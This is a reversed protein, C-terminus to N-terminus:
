IKQKKLWTDIESSMFALTEFKFKISKKRKYKRLLWDCLVARKRHTEYIAYLSIIDQQEFGFPKILGVFIEMMEKDTLKMLSPNLRFIYRPKKRKPMKFAHPDFMEQGYKNVFYEGIVYHWKMKAEKPLYPTLYYKRIYIGDYSRVFLKRGEKKFRVDELIGFKGWGSDKKQREKNIREKKKKYESETKAFLQEGEPKIQYWYGDREAFFVEGDKSYEHGIKDYRYPSIEEFDYNWFYWKGECPIAYFYRDHDKSEHGENVAIVGSGLIIYDYQNPVVINANDDIIGYKNNFRFPTISDSFVGTEFTPLKTESGDKKILTRKGDDYATYYGKYESSIRSHVKSFPTGDMNYLQWEEKSCVMFKDGSFWVNKEPVRMIINNNVDVLFGDEGCEVDCAQHQSDYQLLEYQPEITITGKNNVLGWLKNKQIGAYDRDFWHVRTYEIPLVITNNRDVIGWLGKRKVIYNKGFPIVRAYSENGVKQRTSFKISKYFKEDEVKEKIRELAKKAYENGKEAAKSYYSEAKLYSQTTGVGNEYCYGLNAFAPINGQKVSRSYLEFAKAYDKEVGKGNEYLFGLNNMAKSNGQEVAKSYWEIAKEYSQITGYGNNYCIGLNTQAIHNGQIASKEYWDFAKQPSTQVGKGTEYRYGLDLQAKAHGQEAAKRFCEVAKTLDKDIGDGESYCWGLQYQAIANGQNAAKTYWEVAKKSDQEVGVGYLYCYALNSQSKALGQEAAKLYWRVAAEYDVPFGAIGHHYCFGIKNQADADGKAAMEKISEINDTIVSYDQM